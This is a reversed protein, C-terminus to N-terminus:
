QKRVTKYKKLVFQVQCVENRSNVIRASYINGEQMPLIKKLDYEILNEGPKLHIRFKAPDKRGLGSQTVVLVEAETEATENLYSMKLIGEPAIGKESVEMKMKIFPAARIFKVSDSLSIKFVWTETKGAYSRDDRAIVQWAYWKEKEFSPASSTYSLLPSYLNGSYFPINQQVAEAAQQGENVATIVIDYSLNSFMGTLAPPIWSFQAPSIELVSSDAPFSLMPPSLPEVDFQICEDVPLFPKAGAGTLTYCATYNGVPLLGQINTGAGQSFYNYQIPNLLNVNLQRAGAGTSFSASSAALVELNTIRDRLVIDLRCSFEEQSSNVLLVNWLQDKQIVGVAPVVPQLSLQCWLVKPLFAAVLFLLVIKKM